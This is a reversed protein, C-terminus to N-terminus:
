LGGVIYKYDVKYHVQLIHIIWRCYVQLAGSNAGCGVGRSGWNRTGGGRIIVCYYVQLNGLSPLSIVNKM